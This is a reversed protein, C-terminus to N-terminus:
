AALQDASRRRRSLAGCALLWGGLVLCTGPEPVVAATYQIAIGGPGTQVISFFGNSIAGTIDNNLTFNTSDITWAVSGFATGSFSPATLFQWTYNSTKDFNSVVGLANSNNLGNLQVTMATGLSIPANTALLQDWNVGLAGTADNVEFEFISNAAFTVANASRSSVTLTGPSAGPSMIGNTAVTIPRDIEGTGGLRAGANVTVASTSTALFGNVNFRGGAVVIAGTMTSNAITSNLNWTGAGTKNLASSGTFAGNQTWNFGNTNVDNTFSINVQRNTTWNGALRVGNGATAGIDVAGGNGLQADNSFVLTGNFIRTPGTYSNNNNTLIVTAGGSAGNISLGGAGTIQGDLQLAGSAGTTSIHMLGSGVNINQSLVTTTLGSNLYSLGPRTISSVSSVSISNVNIQSSNGFAAANNFGILGNNVTTTGSYTNAGTLTLLGSGNKNLGGSGAIAGSVTLGSPNIFMAEQAGFDLGSSITAVGSNLVVGSTLNLSGGLSNSLTGTTMVLANRTTTSASALDLSATLRVNDDTTSGGVITTAYETATALPRIRGSDFTVLTDGTGAATTAGYAYPLISINTSGAAGGGGLLGTPATSFSVTGVNVGPTAGLSTGRFLVTSRNQRTLNGFSIQAASTTTPTLTIINAGQELILNGVAENYDVGAGSTATLVAGGMTINASNNIRGGAVVSATTDVLALTGGRLVIGSTGSLAGNAGSVTLTGNSVPSNASQAFMVPDTMITQGSYTNNGTLTFGTSGSYGAIRVNQNGSIVGSLTLVGSGTRLELQNNLQINNAVTVASAGAIWGGNFIVNNASNGFAAANGVLVRGGDVIVGEGAGVGTTFTNTGSLRVMSWVDNTSNGVFRVTAPNGSIVGSLLLTGLGNSGFTVAGSSPNLNIASSITAGADLNGNNGGVVPIGIFPNAGGMELSNGALSSITMAGTFRQGFTMQNFIFPGGLDNAATHSANHGTFHLTTTTSGGATPTGGTWTGASWNTTGTFPGVWTHQAHLTSVALGALILLASISLRRIM